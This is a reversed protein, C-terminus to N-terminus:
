ADLTKSSFVYETVNEKWDDIDAKTRLIHRETKRKKTKKDDWTLWCTVPAEGKEFREAQKAANRIKRKTIRVM